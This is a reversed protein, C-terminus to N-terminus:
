QYVFLPFLLISFDRRQDIKWQQTESKERENAYKNYTEKLSESIKNEM